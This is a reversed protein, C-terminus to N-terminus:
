KLPASTHSAMLHITQLLPFHATVQIDGIPGYTCTLSESRRRFLTFSSPPYREGV